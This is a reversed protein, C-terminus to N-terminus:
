EGKKEEEGEEHKKGRRIEGEDKLMEEEEDWRWWQENIRIKGYSVWVRNGRREEIRAIDELRWRMKREKWTLDEVIRKQRGKLNKKRELVERRQEEVKGM